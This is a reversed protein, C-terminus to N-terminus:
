VGMGLSAVTVGVLLLSARTSSGASLWGYGAPEPSNVDVFTVNASRDFATLLKARCTVVMEGKFFSDETVQVQLESVHVRKQNRYTEVQAYPPPPLRNIRWSIETPPDSAGVECRAHIIDHVGVKSGRPRTTIRPGWTPIDVVTMNKWYDDTEFLPKDGMVECRFSGSTQRTIDKLVVSTADSQSKRMEGDRCCNMESSVCLALGCWDARERRSPSDVSRRSSLNYHCLQAAGVVTMNKWYDDTEFLPKDGMVECRFSGSTQRTIDKLVVSTADSQSKDVHVHDTQYVKMPPDKRPMYEYFQELGRYWKLSYLTDNHAPSTEYNCTFKVETGSVAVSPVSVGSMRLCRGRLTFLGLCLALSLMIGSAM